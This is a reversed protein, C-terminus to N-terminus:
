RREWVEEIQALSKGRTEPVLKWVFFFAVVCVGAFLWFAAADGIAEILTLFVQSVLWTAFWNAGTAVAVARGRVSSPFIENIVTWVVPGLSFAFSAIYMVLAVLTVVGAGGAGAAHDNTPQGAPDASGMSLFCAGIALLSVGMGVLGVLLLPRRGLRDVYLVAVFTFLVNVAGISWTTAATQAAPTHFGADEFVRDAYYIIANIGTLQQLVALGVGVVLPRRWRRAFVESWSAERASLRRRVDAIEARVDEGPRAKRLADAAEHERGGKLYWTPSDPLPLMAVLLLVGPVASLGLMTRWAHTAALGQDVLFAVFIGFTIALQYLSVLRGRLRTPAIESVFLPASVSAVGVGVGLVLRGLVLVWAAPAFTEIGVGATFVAAGLLIAMRRGFTEALGGAALAGVLAGLTVWSTIVEALLTSEHFSRHIGDLAGAIVGQDYGFLLGALVVAGAVLILWAGIRPKGSPEGTRKTTAPWPGRDASEITM